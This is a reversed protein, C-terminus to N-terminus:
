KIVAVVRIRRLVLAPDGHREAAFNATLIDRLVVDARVSQSIMLLFRVQDLECHPYLNGLLQCGLDAYWWSCM